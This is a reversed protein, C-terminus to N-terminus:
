DIMRATSVCWGAAVNFIKVSPVVLLSLLQKIMGNAVAPFFVEVITRPDKKGM